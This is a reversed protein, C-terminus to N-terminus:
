SPRPLKLTPYKALFFRCLHPKDVDGNDRCNQMMERITFGSLQKAQQTPDHLWAATHDAEVTNIDVFLVRDGTEENREIASAM